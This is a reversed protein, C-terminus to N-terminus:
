PEITIEPEDSPIPAVIVRQRRLERRMCAVDERATNLEEEARGRRFRELMYLALFVAALAAIVLYLPFPVDANTMRPPNCGSLIVTTVILRGRRERSVVRPAHPKRPDITCRVLRASQETEVDRPQGHADLDGTVLVPPLTPTHPAPRFGLVRFTKM